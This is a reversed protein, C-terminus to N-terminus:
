PGLDRAEGITLQSPLLNAHRVDIYSLLLNDVLFAQGFPQWTIYIPTCGLILHLAQLQGDSNVFIEYQLVFNLDRM